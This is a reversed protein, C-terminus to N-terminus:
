EDLLEDLTEKAVLVFGDPVRFAERVALEKRMEVMQENLKETLEEAKSRRFVENEVRDRLFQVEELLKKKTKPESHKEGSDSSESSLNEGNSLIHRLLHESVECNGAINFSLITKNKTMCDIICNAGFDTLGCNQMDITKVWEDEVLVDTMAKLGDDSIDPNNSIAIEKLGLISDAEVTQYRLSKIWAESFRQIRQSRILNAVSEAGKIGLECGSLNLVEINAKHQLTLCISDCAADSLCCRNFSLTKISSNQSLGKVLTELYRGKLPLGELILTELRSNQSLLRELAEVLGTLVFNSYVAPLSKEENAKKLTDVNELVPLFKLKRNKGLTM